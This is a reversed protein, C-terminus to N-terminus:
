VGASERSSGSDSRRLRSHNLGRRGTRSRRYSRRCRWHRPGNILWFKGQVFEVFRKFQNALEVRGADCAAIQALAQEILQAIDLLLMLLLFVSIVGPQNEGIGDRNHVLM